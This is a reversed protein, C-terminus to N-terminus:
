RQRVRLDMGASCEVTMDSDRTSTMLHGKGPIGHDSDRKVEEMNRDNVQTISHAYSTLTNEIRINSVNAMWHSSNKMRATIKTRRNKWSDFKENLTACVVIPNTLLM